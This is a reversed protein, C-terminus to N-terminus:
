QAATRQLIVVDGVTREPRYPAMEAALGSDSRAWAMWDFGSTREVLILDPHRSAIDEALFKKDLAICDKLAAETAADLHGRDLRVEAGFTLWQASVRSVWTGGVDRTLPHGISLDASMVLIKPHPMISRVAATLAPRQKAVDLSHFTVAAICATVLAGALWESRNPAVHGSENRWRDIVAMTLAVMALALMPYSQYPWGKQQVFFAVSFGISAALLLSFPAQVISRRKLRWTLVLMVIWVPTAVHLIFSIFDEKVPVYALMLLPLVDHIFQPFALMVFLGYAALAAAALWNELAFLVRWSRAGLAAAASVCVIAIAFHPKVIAASVSAAAVAKWGPREGKARMAAVALLPLFAILVIHEREGFTRAPLLLIAAATVTLLPWGDGTKLAASQRLIAVSVTLSLAAALFVLADVATEARLGIAREIVVPLVYLFVTAPPNVEIVDVYLRQGDLWKEAMTLGWSVDTNTGIVTRLLLALAVVLLLAFWRPLARRGTLASISDLSM